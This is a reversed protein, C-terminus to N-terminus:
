EEWPSFAAPGNEALIMGPCQPCHRSRSLPAAPGRGGSLERTEDEVGHVEGPGTEAAVDLYRRFGTVVRGSFLAHVGGGRPLFARPRASILRQTRTM